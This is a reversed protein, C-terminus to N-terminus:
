SLFNLAACIRGTCPILLNRDLLFSAQNSISAFHPTIHTVKTTVVTNSAFVRCHSIGFEKM